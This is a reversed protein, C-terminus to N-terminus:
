IPINMLVFNLTLNRFDWGTEPTIVLQKRVFMKCAYSFKLAGMSSLIAIYNQPCAQFAM